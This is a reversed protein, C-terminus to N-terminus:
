LKELWTHLCQVFWLKVYNATTTTKIIMKDVTFYWLVNRRYKLVSSIRVWLDKVIQSVMKCAIYYKHERNWQIKNDVSSLSYYWVYRLVWKVFKDSQFRPGSVSKLVNKELDRHMWKVTSEKEFWIKKQKKLRYWRLCHLAQSLLTLVLSM